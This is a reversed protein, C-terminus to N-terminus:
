SIRKGCRHCFEFDNESLSGCYPCQRGCGKRGESLIMNVVAMYDNFLSQYRRM